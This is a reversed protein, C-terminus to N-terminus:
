NISRPLNTTGPDFLVVSLSRFVFSAYISYANKFGVWLQRPNKQKKNKSIILM